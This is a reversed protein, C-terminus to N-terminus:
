NASVLEPKPAEVFYMDVEGKNKALIKGRYHCQFYDKVLQYTTGSINIKGEESSSEMRAALNVTDGWIDYAFKKLGVIGAVVNGTHIGIRVEFVPKNQAARKKGHQDMFDRIELAARVVNVAHSDNVVPLGGVAMYADGITKIKEIGYRQIIRDFEKFCFDLESVLDDASMNEAIISFGKFDTFMVTVSGYKQAQATGKEKLEKAIDSPLINLLLEDSKEKESQLDITREVVKSELNANYEELRRENIRLNTEAAKRVEVEQMLQENLQTTRELLMANQLSIATQSAMVQIIEVREDTFAGPLLRNELYLYAFADGAHKLPMCVVSKLQHQLVYAENSYPLKSRADELVLPEGTRAVYNVVAHSIEDFQDFHIEQLVKVENKSVDLSAKIIKSGDEEVILFARDAGANETILDMLGKLINGLVMEGSILNITKLITNLDLNTSKAGIEESSIVGHYAEKMQLLKAKAGWKSYAKYANSFYFEAAEDQNQRRLFQGAREWIIAEDQIYRNQRAFRLAYTFSKLAGDYNGLLSEYEANMVEYRHRYNLESYKLLGKFLKLNKKAIKLLKKQEDKSRRGFIPTICLNEYFYFLTETVSGKVPILCTKELACYKWAIEDQNFVLAILKKQAYLNHYYLAFEAVNPFGAEQEDFIPGKLIDYDSVGDVLSAASQRFLAIRKIQMIQNLPAVQLSLLEGRRLLKDLPMGGYFYWYIILQGIISTFEFNGTELGKKFAEELDPISDALHKLWQAIFMIYAQKNFVFQSEDGLIDGLRNGLQGMKLGKDIKGMFAINIYGFVVLAVASKPGLGFKLTLRILEFMFLPVLNPELFYAALSLHHMISMSIITKEDTIRPLKEIEGEKFRSLRINTMLYGILVDVQSPHLKLNIDCKRLAEIGVEIVRKQNNAVNANLIKLEALKLMDLVDSVHKDLLGTFQDFLEQKNCQNAAIAAHLYLDYTFKRDLEWSNEPLLQIANQFYQLAFLYATANQARVGAMINLECLRHLESPEAILAKGFNLQNAIDFIGEALEQDSANELLLRGIRLHHRQKGLEDNLSYFAQQVRDHVFYMYGDHSEIVLDLDVAPQLDKSINAKKSGTILELEELRFKNGRCSALKLLTATDEPLEKITDLFLDVIDGDVNFNILEQEDWKWSGSASDFFLRESNYIAKLFQIALLVNGGSKKDVIKVLDDLPKKSKGLSSTVLRYIDGYQLNTLHIEEPQFGMEGIEMKFQLFLHGTTVENDRYAGVLLINQIENSTLINRMLSLSSVDSWQLDDIFIVLPTGTRSFVQFFNNMAYNFRLQAELGNLVPLEPENELISELGPIVDYLVRGVPHLLRHFEEKWKLLNEQNMMLLQAMLRGLAQSFAAYPTDTKLQDFKGSTFLGGEGLVRGYISEVLASKGVGSNGYVLTLIKEGEMVRHFSQLLQNIQVERGFLQDTTRLVGSADNTGLEFKEAVGSSELQHLVEELDHLVGIASHYRNQLDKELMKLIIDALALPIDVTEAPNRPTLAIHAHIKAAGEKSEFPSFGTFLWYFVAGLSYIDTYFGISAGIRGTQEPAIYDQDAEPFTLRHQLGIKGRIKAAMGLSIFYIRHTSKEILIHDPNLNLHVTDQRQVDALRKSIAICVRLKGVFSPNTAAYERLTQGHVFQLKLRIESNDGESGLVKRFGDIQEGIFSAENNSKMLAIQSISAQSARKFAINQELFSDSHLIDFFKGEYLVQWEM